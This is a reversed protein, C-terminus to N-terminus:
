ESHCRKSKRACNQGGLCPRRVAPRHLPRRRLPLQPDLLHPAQFRHDVSHGPIDSAYVRYQVIYIYVCVYTCVDMWAHMCVICYLVIGYWVMGYVYVYVYVHLYLVTCYLYLYLFIVYLVICYM